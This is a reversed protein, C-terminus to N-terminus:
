KNGYFPVMNRSSSDILWIFLFASDTGSSLMKFITEGKNFACGNERKSM